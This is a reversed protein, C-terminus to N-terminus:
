FRGNMRQYKGGMAEEEKSDFLVVIITIILFSFIRGKLENNKHGQSLKNQPIERNQGLKTKPVAIVENSFLSSNVKSENSPSHTSGVMTQKSKGNQTM